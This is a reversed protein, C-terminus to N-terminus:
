LNIVRHTGKPGSHYVLKFHYMEFSTQLMGSSFGDSTDHDLHFHLGVISQHNMLKMLIGYVTTM